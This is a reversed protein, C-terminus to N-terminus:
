AKVGQACIRAKKRINLQVTEADPALVTFNEKREMLDGLWPPLDPSIGCAERVADPFKAPHATSLVVSPVGAERTERAVKVAVATHPDCLYNSGKLVSGMTGATEAISASAASFEDRITQLKDPELTFSGSQRLSAMATRVADADRDGAEFM